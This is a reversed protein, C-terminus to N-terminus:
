WSKKDMSDSSDERGPENPEPKEIKNTTVPEPVEDVLDDDRVLIGFVNMSIDMTEQNQSTSGIVIVDMAGESFNININEDLWCTIPDQDWELELSDLELVNSKGEDTMTLRSVNGKVIAFRDYNDMHQQHWEGLNNLTTLNNPFHKQIMSSMADYPIRETEESVNFTNNETSSLHYFEETSKKRKIAHFQVMTFFPLDLDVSEGQLYLFAPIPNRQEESEKVLMLVKRQREASPVIDKGAKFSPSSSDYLPIISEGEVRVQKTEIMTQKLESNAMRYQEVILDHKKQAGFDNINSMGIIIGEFVSANSKLIKKYYAQMRGVTYQELKSEEVGRSKMEEEFEKYQKNFEEETIKTKTKLLGFFDKKNMM